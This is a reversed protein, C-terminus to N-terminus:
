KWGPTVQRSRSPRFLAIKYGNQKLGALFAPMVAITQPQIDHFLMVGRGEYEVEKLAFYLLFEPDKYKWDMSDVNWFFEPTYTRILYDKLDATRAGYPYRFFTATQNLVTAIASFGSEIEEVAKALPLKRLDAHTFSHCGIEHGGAATLAVAARHKLTNQGVLFFQVTLNEAALISLLAPTRTPHPGDDFTLVITKEPLNGDTVIPNSETDLILEQSPGLTSQSQSFRQRLRSSADALFKHYRLKQSKLCATPPNELYDSVYFLDVAALKKLVVCLRRQFGPLHHRQRFREDISRPSHPSEQWEQYSTAREHFAMAARLDQEIELESQDAFLAVPGALVLISFWGLSLLRHSCGM